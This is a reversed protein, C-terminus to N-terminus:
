PSAATVRRVLASVMDHLLAARLVEAEHSKGLVDRENVAYERSLALETREVLLLGDAYLEFEVRYTLEVERPRGQPSLAIVREGSEEAVIRLTTSAPVGAGVVAVGANGLSRRLPPLLPSGTRVSEIRMPSLGPDATAAGRLQFGCGALTCAVFFLLVLHPLRAGGSM